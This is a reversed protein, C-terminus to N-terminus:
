EIKLWHSSKETEMIEREIEGQANETEIIKKVRKNFNYVFIDKNKYENGIWFQSNEDEPNGIVIYIAAASKPDSKTPAILETYGLWLASAITAVAATDYLIARWDFAAVTVGTIKYLEAEPIHKSLYNLFEETTVAGGVNALAGSILLPQSM